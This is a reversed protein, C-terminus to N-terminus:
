LTKMLHMLLDPGDLLVSESPYRLIGNPQTQTSEPDWSRKPIRKPQGYKVVRIKKQGIATIQGILLTSSSDPIAVVDGIKLPRGIADNCDLEKNAM